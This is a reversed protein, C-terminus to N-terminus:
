CINSCVTKHMPHLHFNARALYCVILALRNRLLFHRLNVLNDTALMAYRLHCILLFQTHLIHPIIGLPYLQLFVQGTGCRYWLDCMSQGPM